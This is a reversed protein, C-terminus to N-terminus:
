TKPAPSILSRLPRRNASATKLRIPPPVSARTPFTSILCSPLGMGPATSSLACRRPRRCDVHFTAERVAPTRATFRTDPFDQDSEIRKMVPLCKEYSRRIGMRSGTTSITNIPRLVVHCERRAAAM